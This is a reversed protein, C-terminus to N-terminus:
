SDVLVIGDSRLMAHRLPAWEADIGYHKRIERPIQEGQHGCNVAIDHACPPFPEALMRDMVDPKAFNFLDCDVGQRTANRNHAGYWTNDKLAPLSLTEMLLVDFRLLFVVDYEKGAAKRLENARCMSYRSGHKKYEAALHAHGGNELDVEITVVTPFNDKIYQVDEDTVRQDKGGNDHHWRRLETNLHSYTHVYVDGPYRDILPRVTQNKRFTRLHGYFCYAVKM